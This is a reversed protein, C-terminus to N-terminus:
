AKQANAGSIKRWHPLEPFEFYVFYEKMEWVKGQRLIERRWSEWTGAGQGSAFDGASFAAPHSHPLEPFEFYVFYEKM